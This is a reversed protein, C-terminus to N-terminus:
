RIKGLGCKMLQVPHSNFLLIILSPNGVAHYYYNCSFLIPSVLCLKYHLNILCYNLDFSYSPLMSGKCVNDEVLALFVPLSKM